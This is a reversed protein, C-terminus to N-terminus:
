LIKKVKIFGDQTDPAEALIEETFEGPASPNEDERVVNKVMYEPEIDGVDVKQIQDVYALISDLDKRFDEAESDSVEIKALDGLKKIEDNSISM